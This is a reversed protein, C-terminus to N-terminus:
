LGGKWGAIFADQPTRPATTNINWIVWVWEFRRRCKLIGVLELVRLRDITAIILRGSRDELLERAATGLYLYTIAAHEWGRATSVPNSIRSLPPFAPINFLSVSHRLSRFTPRCIDCDGYRSGQIDCLQSWTTNGPTFAAGMDLLLTWLM